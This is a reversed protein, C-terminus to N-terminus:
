SFSASITNRRRPTSAKISRSFVPSSLRVQWSAAFLCCSAAVRAQPQLTEQLSASNTACILVTLKIGSM